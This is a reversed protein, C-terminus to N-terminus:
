RKGNDMEYKEVKARLEKLEVSMESIIALLDHFGFCYNDRSYRQTEYAIANRIRLLEREYWKLKTM